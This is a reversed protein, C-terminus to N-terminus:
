TDGRSSRTVPRVVADRVADALVPDLEPQDDPSVLLGITALLDAGATGQGRGHRM